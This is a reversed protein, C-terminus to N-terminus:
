SFNGQNGTKYEVPIFHIAGLPAYEEDDEGVTENAASPYLIRRLERAIAEKDREPDYNVGQKGGLAKTTDLSIDDYDELLGRVLQCQSPTLLNMRTESEVYTASGAKGTISLLQRVIERELSDLPTSPKGQIQTLTPM